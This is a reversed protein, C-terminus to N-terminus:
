FDARAKVATSLAQKEPASTGDKFDSIKDNNIFDYLLRHAATWQQQRYNVEQIQWGHEVRRFLTSPTYDMRLFYDGVAPSVPFSMGSQLPKGEGNPPIGDGAFIWPLEDDLETGPMIWFQQTEFNRNKFNAIAADVISNNIDQEIGITTLLDNLTGVDNLGFPDTQQQSLIDAYEQGGTMPTCKLRWIHPFWTSSYGDSARNADEVVYFKNIAPADGPITDDRQHPLELVDGPIIRRGCMAVMDNIHVELFITDNQLFLGFQRMDFDVDAVNYIGRLEIITTDYKRDRNELFLPDQISTIGGDMVAANAIGNATQDYVGLYRHVYVATGSAGFFSSIIRDIYKYDLGKRGSNWISIQRGM